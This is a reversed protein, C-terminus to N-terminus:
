QAKNEIFIEVRRNRPEKVNDDTAVALDSEGFAFIQMMQYPLGFQELMARVRQARRESLRLNYEDSGSSDTHGNLMIQQPQAVHQQKITTAIEKLQQEGTADLLARDWDFYLQYSNPIVQEKPIPAPAPAPPPPVTSTSSISTSTTSSCAGLMLVMCCLGWPAFMSKKSM